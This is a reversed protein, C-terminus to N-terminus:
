FEGMNHLIGVKGDNILQAEAELNWRSRTRFYAVDRTIKQLLEKDLDSLKYSIILEEALKDLENEMSNYYDSFILQIEENTLTKFFSM